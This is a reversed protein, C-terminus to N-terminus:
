LKIEEDALAKPELKITQSEKDYYQAEKDTNKEPHIEKENTLVEETLTNLSGDREFDCYGWRLIKGTIKDIVYQIAM